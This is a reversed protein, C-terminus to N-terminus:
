GILRGDRVRYSLFEAGCAHCVYGMAESEDGAEDPMAQPGRWRPTLREHLCVAVVEDTSGFIRGFFAVYRERGRQAAESPRRAITDDRWDPPSPARGTPNSAARSSAPAM